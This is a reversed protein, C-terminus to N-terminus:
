NTYNNYIGSFVFDIFKGITYINNKVFFTDCLYVTVAESSQKIYISENEILGNFLDVM